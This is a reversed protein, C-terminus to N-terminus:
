WQNRKWHQRERLSSKRKKQAGNKWDRKLSKSHWIRTLLDGRILAEKRKNNETTNIWLKKRASQKAKDAGWCIWKSM